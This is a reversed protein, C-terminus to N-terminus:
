INIILQFITDGEKGSLLNIDSNYHMLINKVIAMGLGTGDKKTTYFPQFIKEPEKIGCGNDKIFISLKKEFDDKESYIFILGGSEVADISNEILHIFVSELKEPNFHIKIDEVKNEITINKKQLIPELLIRINNIVQYVSIEQHSYKDIKSFQLIDKMLRSLRKVEKQIIDFSKQRVPSLQLANKLIDINMNISNLPTKMEHSIYASMKGMTTLKETQLYNEEALKEYTIDNFIIGALNIGSNDNVPFFASRLYKKGSDLSIFDEYRKIENGTIIMSLRNDWEKGIGNNGYFIEYVKKGLLNESAVSLCDLATQNFMMIRRNKDFVLICESTSDFISKLLNRENKIDELMKKKDTINRNISIYGIVKGDNNKIASVTSGIWFREGKINKQVSEYRIVGTEILTKHINEKDASSIDTDVFGTINKGIVEDFKWGYINEAGKNWLIINFDKDAVIVADSVLNWLSLHYDLQEELKKHFSIDNMIAIFNTIDGTDNFVPIITQEDIYTTGNKRKNYLQGYWSKGRKITDWLNKYIEIKNLGSELINPNKGKVESFTYGTLDTFAKNIWIIEGDKQTILISKDAADLASILLQIENETKKRDTIDRIINLIDGDRAPVLRAEYYREENQIEVSYEYTVISSLENVRKFANSLSDRAKEPLVDRFNKGLFKDPPVFLNEIGAIYYDKIIGDRSMKFLKDPFAEFISELRISKENFENKLSNYETRDEASFLLGEAIGDDNKLLSIEILLFLNKGSKDNTSVESKWFDSSNETLSKQIDSINIENIFRSITKNQLENNTYGTTNLFKYNVSKIIWNSDLVAILNPNYMYIQNKFSSNNLFEKSLKNVKKVNTIEKM